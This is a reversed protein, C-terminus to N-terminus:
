LIAIERPKVAEKVPLTLTLVGHELGATLRTEDVRDNLRLHLEYGADSLERHLPKWNEPVGRRRAASLHIVGDELNLRLDEKAVGPLEVRVYHAEATHEIEFRPRRTRSAAQAPETACSAPAQCLATNM